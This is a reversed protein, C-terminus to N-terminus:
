SPYILGEPTHFAIGYQATDYAPNRIVVTKVTRDGGPYALDLGMSMPNPTTVLGVVPMAALASLFGRRTTKM